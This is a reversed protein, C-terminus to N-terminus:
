EVDCDGDVEFPSVLACAFDNAVASAELGGAPVNDGAWDAFWEFDGLVLNDLFGGLVDDADHLSVPLEGANRM